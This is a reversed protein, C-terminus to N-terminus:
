FRVHTYPLLPDPAAGIPQPRRVGLIQQWRGDGVATVAQMAEVLGGVCGIRWLTRRVSAATTRLSRGASQRRLFRLLLAASAM